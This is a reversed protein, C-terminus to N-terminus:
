RIKRLVLDYVFGNIQFYANMRSGNHLDTLIVVGPENFVFQSGAAVDEVYALTYRYQVSHEDVYTLEGTYEDNCNPIDEKEPASLTFTIKRKSVNSEYEWQGEICENGSDDIIDPSVSYDRCGILFISLFLIYSAKM